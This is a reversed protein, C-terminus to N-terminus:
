KRGVEFAATEGRLIASLMSSVREQRALAARLTGNTHEAQERRQFEELSREAWGKTGTAPVLSMEGTRSPSSEPSVMRIASHRQLLALREELAQTEQQLAAIEKRPDRRVYVKKVPKVPSPTSSGVTESVSPKVRKAPRKPTNSAASDDLGLDLDLLLDTPTDLLALAEELTFLEDMAALAM